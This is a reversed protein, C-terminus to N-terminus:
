EKLLINKNYNQPHSIKLILLINLNQKVLGSPAKYSLVPRLGTIYYSSSLVLGSLAFYILVTRKSVDDMNEEICGICVEAESLLRLCRVSLSRYSYTIDAVFHRSINVCPSARHHLYCSSIVFGSLAVYVLM